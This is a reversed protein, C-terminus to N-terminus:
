KILRNELWEKFGPPADRSAVKPNWGLQLRKKYKYYFQEYIENVDTEPRKENPDLWDKEPKNETM